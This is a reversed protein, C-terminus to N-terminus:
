NQCIAKKRSSTIRKDPFNNKYMLFQVLEGGGNKGNLIPSTGFASPTCFCLSCFRQPRDADAKDRRLPTNTKNSDM